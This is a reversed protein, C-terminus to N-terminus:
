MQSHPRQWLKRLSNEMWSFNSLLTVIGLSWALSFSAPIGHTPACLSVVVSHCWEAQGLFCLQSTSSEESDSSFWHGLMASVVPHQEREPSFGLNNRCTRNTLSVKGSKLLNPSFNFRKSHKLYFNLDHGWLWLRSSKQMVLQSKVRCVLAWLNKKRKVLQMRYLLAWKKCREQADWDGPWVHSVLLTKKVIGLFSLGRM